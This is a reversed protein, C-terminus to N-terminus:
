ESLSFSLFISMEDHLINIINCFPTFSPLVYFCREIIQYSKNAHITEDACENTLSLHKLYSKFKSGSRQPLM